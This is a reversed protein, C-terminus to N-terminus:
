ARVAAPSEARLATLAADAKDSTMRGHVADNVVMVPALSCAGVCAVTQLTIAGDATTEDEVIGLTTKVHDLIAASGNVHCATGRCVRVTNRGPPSLRFLNYFTAVGFVRSLPFALTDAAHELERRPLYGYHNQIEALVTILADAHGRHPDLIRALEPSMVDDVLGPQYVHKRLSKLPPRPSM